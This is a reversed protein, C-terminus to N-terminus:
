CSDIVVDLIESDAFLHQYRLTIIRCMVLKIETAIARMNIAVNSGLRKPFRKGASMLLSTADHLRGQLLSSGTGRKNPLSLWHLLGNRESSVFQHEDTEYGTVDYVGM